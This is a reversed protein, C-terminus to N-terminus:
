NSQLVRFITCHFFFKLSKCHSLFTSAHWKALLQLQTLQTGDDVHGGGGDGGDSDEHQAQAWDKALLHLLLHHLILFPGIIRM